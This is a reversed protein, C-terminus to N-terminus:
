ISFKWVKMGINHDALELKCQVEVSVEERQEAIGGTYWTGKFIKCRKVKTLYPINLGKGDIYLDYGWIDEGESSKLGSM